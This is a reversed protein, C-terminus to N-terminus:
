WRCLQIWSFAEINVSLDLTSCPQCPGGRSQVPWMVWMGVRLPWGTPFQWGALLHTETVKQCLPLSLLHKLTGVLVVSVSRVKVWVYVCAWTDPGFCVRQVHQPFESTVTVGCWVSVCAVCFVFFFICCTFLFQICLLQVSLSFTCNIKSAHNSGTYYSPM